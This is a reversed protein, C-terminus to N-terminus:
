DGGPTNAELGAVSRFRSLCRQLRALDATSASGVQYRVNYLQDSLKGDTPLPEAVAGPIHSCAARVQLRVADPTNPRFVVVEEQQSMAQDFKACGVASVAALATLAVAIVARGRLRWRPPRPLHRRAPVAALM